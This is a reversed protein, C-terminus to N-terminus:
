IPSRLYRELANKVGEYNTHDYIIHEIDEMYMEYMLMLKLANEKVGELQDREGFNLIFSTPPRCYIIKHKAAWAKSQEETVYSFGRLVKGYVLDSIMPHRDMIIPQPSSTLWSDYEQIMKFSSPKHYTAVKCLKLDEALRQVLTSKGSNDMGEIIIM